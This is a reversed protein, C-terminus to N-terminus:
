EFKTYQFSFLEEPITVRETRMGETLARFQREFKAGLHLRSLCDAIRNRSTEIYVLRLECSNLSCVHHLERLCAQMTKNKSRGSNVALVTAKNDCFLKLRKGRCKQSWIKVCITVTVCELENIHAKAPTMKDPFFESFFEGECWGAAKKLSADSMITSDAEEWTPRVMDSRYNYKPIFEQWWDIDYIVTAPIKYRRTPRMQKLFNLIRAIYIRSSHVCNTIFNLKGLLSQVERLTATEKGKWQELLELIEEVRDPTIFLTMTVTNLGTGLFVMEVAPPCAKEESELLGVKEIIKGLCDYAIFARDELECSALDDLFNELDFGEQQFIYRLASSVRQMIYAGSRVGNPLVLDFYFKNDIRYGLLHIDGFDVNVWRYARKLDKKFLLCKRTDNEKLETKKQMIMKVLNDVRPYHLEINKGLYTNKSIGENVSGKEYPHSLNLIVRLENSDRKKRTDLPSIKAKSFELSEYGGAVAGYSKEKEIYTRLAEPNQQAGKQNKPITTNTPRGDHGIPWGYKLYEVVENDKYNKLSEELYEFNWRSRIPIRLGHANPKKSKRILYNVLPANEPTAERISRAEQM